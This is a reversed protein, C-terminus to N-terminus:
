FPQVAEKLRALTKGQVASMGGIGEIEIRGFRRKSCDGSVQGPRFYGMDRAWSDAEGSYCAIKLPFSDIDGPFSDAKGQCSDGEWPFSVPERTLSDVEGPFYDLDSSFSDPDGPFSDGKGHFSDGGGGSKGETRQRGRLPKGIHWDATHLFRM